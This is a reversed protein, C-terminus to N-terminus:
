PGMKMYVLFIGHSPHRLFVEGDLFLFVDRNELGPTCASSLSLQASSDECLLRTLTPCFHQTFGGSGQCRPVQGGAESVCHKGLPFCGTHGVGGQGHPVSLCGSRSLSIKISQLSRDATLRPKLPGNLFRTRPQNVFENLSGRAPEEKRARGGAERM